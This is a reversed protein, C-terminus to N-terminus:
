ITAFKHYDITTHVANFQTQLGTVTFVENIFPKSGSLIDFATLAVALLFLQFFVCDSSSTGYDICAYL